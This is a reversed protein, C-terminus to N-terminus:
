RIANFFFNPYGEVDRFMSRHDTNFIFLRLEERANILADLRDKTYTMTQYICKCFVLETYIYESKLRRGM